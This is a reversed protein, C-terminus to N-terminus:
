TSATKDLIRYGADTDLKHDEGTGAERPIQLQPRGNHEWSSRMETHVPMWFGTKRITQRICTYISIRLSDRNGQM